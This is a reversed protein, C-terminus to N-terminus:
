EGKERARPRFFRLLDMKTKGNITQLFGQLNANDFMSKYIM